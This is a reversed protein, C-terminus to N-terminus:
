CKKTPKIGTIQDGEDITVIFDGNISELEGEDYSEDDNYFDITNVINNLNQLRTQVEIEEDPGFTHRVELKNNKLELDTINTNHITNIYKALELYAERAKNLPTSIMSIYDQAKYLCIRNNRSLPINEYTILILTQTEYKIFVIGHDKPDYKNYLIQQVVASDCGDRMKQKLANLQIQYNDYDDYEPRFIDWTFMTSPNHSRDGWKIRACEKVRKLEYTHWIKYFGCMESCEVMGGSILYEEVIQACIGIITHLISNSVSLIIDVNLEDDYLRKLKNILVKYDRGGYEVLTPLDYSSAVKMMRNVLDM